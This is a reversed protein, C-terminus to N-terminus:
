ADFVDHFDRREFLELKGGATANYIARGDAEYMAKALQYNNLVRELKPDKWTKGKGFYDKHFHNPDDETSTIIDGEVKASDPITYSFDMGILYVESFGLYYALQLNIITVSQGCYMRQSANTSFRPVCFNPSESAYFGRNM